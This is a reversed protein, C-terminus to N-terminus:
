NFAKICRLFNLFGEEDFTKGGSQIAYIHIFRATNANPIIEGELGDYIEGTDRNKYHARIYYMDLGTVKTKNRKMDRSVSWLHLNGEPGRLKSPHEPLVPLDKPDNVWDSDASYNINDFGITMGNIAAQRLVVRRLQSDNAAPRSCGYFYYFNTPLPEPLSIFERAISAIRKPDHDKTWNYVIVLLIFLGFVILLVIVKKGWPWTQIAESMGM